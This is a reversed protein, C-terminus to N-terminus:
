KLYRMRYSCVLPAIIFVRYYLVKYYLCGIDKIYNLIRKVWGNQKQLFRLPFAAVSIKQKLGAM